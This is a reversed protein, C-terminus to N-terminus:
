ILRTPNRNYGEDRVSLRNPLLIISSCINKLKMFPWAVPLVNDQLHLTCYM